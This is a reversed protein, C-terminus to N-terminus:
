ISVSYAGEAETVPQFYTLGGGGGSTLGLGTSGSFWSGGSDGPAAYANTEVMDDVCGQAYCITVGTRFVTGSTLGTTSGSKSVSQNVSANGSGSIGQSSGNYLNVARPQPLGGDNRILGFDNGPFSSAVSPGFYNGNPDYWQSIAGTCHGATLRTGGSSNFGLSCRGGSGTIADGGLIYLQFSGDIKEIEVASGLADATALLRDFQVGAATRGAKVTVKNAMVDIGVATDAPQGATVRDFISELEATSRSVLKPVAGAARVEAAARASVVNVVVTDNVQDLWYGAQQTGLRDVITEGLEIRAPQSALRQTAEAETLGHQGALEAAATAAVQPTYGLPGSAQAPAAAVAAGAALLTLALAGRTARMHWGNRGAM